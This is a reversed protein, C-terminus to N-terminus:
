SETRLVVDQMDGLGGIGNRPQLRPWVYEPFKMDVYPVPATNLFLVRDRGAQEKMSMALATRKLNIEQKETYKDIVRTLWSPNKEDSHVWQYILYAAPISGFAM